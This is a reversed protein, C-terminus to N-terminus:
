EGEWERERGPAFKRKLLMETKRIRNRNDNENKNKNENEEEIDKKELELERKWERTGIEKKIRESM